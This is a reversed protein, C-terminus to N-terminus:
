TRVFSYCSSWVFGVCVSKCHCRRLAQQVPEYWTIDSRRQLVWSVNQTAAPANRGVNLGLSHIFDSPFSFLNEHYFWWSYHLFFFRLLSNLNWILAKSVPTVQRLGSMIFGWTHTHTHRGYTAPQLFKSFLILKLWETDSQTAADALHLDSVHFQIRREFQLPYLYALYNSFLSIFVQLSKRKKKKYLHPLSKDRHSFAQKSNFILEGQRKDLWQSCCLVANM